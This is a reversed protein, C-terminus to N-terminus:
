EVKQTTSSTMRCGPAFDFIVKLNCPYTARITASRGTATAMATICSSNSSCTTGNVVVTLNVDAAQLGPAAEFFAGRADSWVVPNTRGVALLRTAAKTADIMATKNYYAIGFKSVGLLMTLMVTFLLAFEVAVAGRRDGSLRGRIDIRDGM